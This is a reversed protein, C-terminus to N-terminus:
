RRPQAAQGFRAGFRGNRATDCWWSPSRQSPPEPSSFFIWLHPCGRLVNGLEPRERPRAASAMPQGLASANNCLSICIISMGGRVLSRGIECFSQVLTQQKDSDLKRALTALDGPARPSLCCWMDASRPRVPVAQCTWGCSAM